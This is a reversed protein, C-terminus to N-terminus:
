FVQQHKRWGEDDSQQDSGEMANRDVIRRLQIETMYAEEMDDCLHNNEIEQFEDTSLYMDRPHYKEHHRTVKQIEEKM